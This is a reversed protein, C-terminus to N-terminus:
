TRPDDKYITLPDIGNKLELNMELENKLKLQFHDIELGSFDRVFDIGTFYKLKYYYVLRNEYIVLCRYLCNIVSGIYFSTYSRQGRLMILLILILEIMM